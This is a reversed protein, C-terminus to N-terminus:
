KILIGLLNTIKLIRTELEFRIINTNLMTKILKKTDLLYSDYLFSLDINQLGKIAQEKTSYDHLNFFGKLNLTTKVSHDDNAYYLPIALSAYADYIKESVYYKLHTNEVALCYSYGKSLQSLKDLHWDSLSQRNFSSPIQPWGKGIVDIKMSGSEVIANIFNSRFKSLDLANSNELNSRNECAAFINKQKLWRELIYSKDQLTKLNSILLPIYRALFSPETTLYYPLFNYEFVDSTTYDVRFYKIHPHEKLCFMSDSTPSEINPTYINDWFPEESLVILKINHNKELILNISDADSLFDLAFGAIIFDAKLPDSVFHIKNCCLTKYNSYSLIIRHRHKGWLFVNFPKNSKIM